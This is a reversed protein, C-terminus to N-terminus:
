NLSTKNSTKEDTKLSLMKKQSFNTNKKAKTQLWKLVEILKYKKGINFLSVFLEDSYYKKFLKIKQQIELRSYAVAWLMTQRKITDINCYFYMRVNEFNLNDNPPIELNVYFREIISHGHYYHPILTGNKLKEIDLLNAHEFDDILTQEDIIFDPNKDLFWGIAEARRTCLKDSHFHEEVWKSIIKSCIPYRLIRNLIFSARSENDCFWKEEESTLPLNTLLSNFLSQAGVIQKETLFQAKEFTNKFLVFIAKKMQIDLELLKQSDNYAYRRITTLLSLRSIRDKTEWLNITLEVLSRFVNPNFQYYHLYDRIQLFDKYCTILNDNPYCNETELECILNKIKKNWNSIDAM